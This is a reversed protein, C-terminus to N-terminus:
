RPTCVIRLRPSRTAPRVPGVGGASPRINQYPTITPNVFGLTSTNKAATRGCNTSGFAPLAVVWISTSPRSNATIAALRSLAHPSAAPVARAHNAVEGPRRRQIPPSPPV